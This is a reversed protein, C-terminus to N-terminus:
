CGCFSQRKIYIMYCPHSNTKDNKKGSIRSSQAESSSQQCLFTELSFVAKTINQEKKEVKNAREEKKIQSVASIHTPTRM